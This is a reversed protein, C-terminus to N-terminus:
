PAVSPETSAATTPPWPSTPRKGLGCSPWIRIRWSPKPGCATAPCWSCCCRTPVWWSAARPRSISSRAPWPPACCWGSSGNPTRSPTPRTTPGPAPWSRRASPPNPGCSSASTPTRACSPRWSPKPKRTTSCSSARPRGQRELARLSELQQRNIAIQSQLGIETSDLQALAGQLRSVEAQSSTTLQTRQTSLAQQRGKLITTDLTVLPADKEVLQGEKVLVATVVGPQDPKIDQTSRKTKLTGQVTVIQDVKVFAAAGVATIVLVAVSGGLVM